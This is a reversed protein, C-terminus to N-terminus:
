INGRNKTEADEGKTLFLSAAFVLTIVLLFLLALNVLACYKREYCEQVIGYTRWGLIFLWLITVYDSLVIALRTVSYRKVYCLPWKGKSPFAEDLQEYDEAGLFDGRVQGEWYEFWYRSGRNALTWALSSMFGLCSIIYTYTTSHEGLAGLAVLSAVVFGWYFASRKWFLDIEFRRNEHATLKKDYPKLERLRYEKAAHQGRM